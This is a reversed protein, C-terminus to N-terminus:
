EDELTEAVYPISYDCAQCRNLLEQATTDFVPLGLEALQELEAQCNARNKDRDLDVFCRKCYATTINISAELAIMQKAEEDPIIHEENM